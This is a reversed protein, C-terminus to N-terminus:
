ASGLQHGRLIVLRSVLVVVGKFFSPTPGADLNLPDLIRSLARARYVDAILYRISAWDYMLFLGAGTAVAFSDSLVSWATM